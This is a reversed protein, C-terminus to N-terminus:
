SIQVILSIIAASGVLAATTTVWGVARSRTWGSFGLSALLALTGGIFGVSMLTRPLVTSVARLAIPANPHYVASLMTAAVVSVVFAVASTVALGIVVTMLRGRHGLTLMTALFTAAFGGLFASLGAIQTALASVYTPSLSQM